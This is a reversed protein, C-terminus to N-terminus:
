RSVHVSIVPHLMWSLSCIRVLLADFLPCLFFRPRKSAHAATRPEASLQPLLLWWKASAASTNNEWLVGTFFNSQFWKPPDMILFMRWFVRIVQLEGFCCGGTAKGATDEGDWCM